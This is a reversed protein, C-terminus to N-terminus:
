RSGICLDDDATGVAVTQWHAHDRVDTSAQARITGNCGGEGINLRLQAASEQSKIDEIPFRIPPETKESETAPKAEPASAQTPGPPEPALAKQQRWYYNAASLRNDLM